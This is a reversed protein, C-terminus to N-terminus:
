ILRDRKDTDRTIQGIIDTVNHDLLRNRPDVSRFFRIGTGESRAKARPRHHARGIM